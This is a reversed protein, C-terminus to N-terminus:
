GLLILWSRRTPRIASDYGGAVLVQTDSLATATQFSRRRGLGSGPVERIVGTRPNFVDMTRGGAILWSEGMPFFPLPTM